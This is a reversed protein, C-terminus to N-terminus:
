KELYSSCTVGCCLMAKPRRGDGRDSRKCWQVCIPPGATQKPARKEAFSHGFTGDGRSYGHKRQSTEKAWELGTVRAEKSNKLRGFISM